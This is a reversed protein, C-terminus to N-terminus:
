PLPRNPTAKGNTVAMSFPSWPTGPWKVTLAPFACSALESCTAHRDSLARRLQISCPSDGATATATLQDGEIAIHQLGRVVPRPRLAVRRHLLLHVGAGSSRQKLRRLDVHRLVSQGCESPGSRRTPPALTRDDKPNAAVVRRPGAPDEYARGTGGQGSQSGANSAQGAKNRANRGRPEVSLASSAM